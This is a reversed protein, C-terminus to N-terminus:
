CGVVDFIEVGMEDFVLMSAQDYAYSSETRAIRVARWGKRSKLTDFEKELAARIQPISQGEEVAKKM